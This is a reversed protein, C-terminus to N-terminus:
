VCVMRRVAVERSAAYCRVLGAVAASSFEGQDHDHQFVDMPMVLASAGIRCLTEVAHDPDFNAVQNKRQHVLEFCDDFCSHVIKVCGATVSSIGGPSRDIPSDAMALMPRM